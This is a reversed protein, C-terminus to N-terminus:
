GNYTVQGTDRHWTRVLHRKKGPDPFDVFESRYHAIDINNIYQMHGREIPMEFWLEPDESVEKLADVADSTAPDMEIGAVKYGNFILSPNARTRLRSGTYSFVPASAAVPDNQPHEAQRDWLVPEYLRGLEAPYQRLMRNHITHLSCFRSMGGQKAPQLCLLGVYHPLAIGFANDNHFLLEVATYSGRVGYQWPTGTDRVHYVMTGDWKQAVNRGIAQGLVWYADIAQDTELDDLPMADIVAIHPPKNLRNRVDRMLELINPMEFQSARRLVTPLPNARMADAMALIETRVADSISILCESPAIDSGLWARADTVQRDLRATSQEHSLDLIRGNAADFNM